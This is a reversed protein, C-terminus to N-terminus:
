GFHGIVLRGENRADALRQRLPSDAIGAPAETNPRFPARVVKQAPVAPVPAKALGHRGVAWSIVVVAALMLAPWETTSPLWLRRGSWEHLMLITRKGRLRAIALAILPSFVVRKWAVIPFNCVVNQASGIARWIEGLSDQNQTLTLTATSDPAVKEVTERLRLT